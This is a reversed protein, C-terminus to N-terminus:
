SRHAAGPRKAGNSFFLPPKKKRHYPHAVISSRPTYFDYGWTWMRVAMSFEEGDFIMPLCCDYPVRLVRHGRSFSIGAGWLPHLMPTKIRPYVETAAEHKIMKSGVMIKSDCIVPTHQGTM